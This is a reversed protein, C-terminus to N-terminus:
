EVLRDGVDETRQWNGRGNLGREGAARVTKVVDVFEKKGEFAGLPWAQGSTDIAEGDGFFGDGGGELGGDL